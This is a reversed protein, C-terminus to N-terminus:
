LIFSQREELDLWQRVVPEIKAWNDVTWYWPTDVGKHKHAHIEAGMKRLTEIYRSFTPQTLGLEKLLFRTESQGSVGMCWLLKLLSQRKNGIREM